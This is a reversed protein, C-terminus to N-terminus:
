SRSQAVDDLMGVVAKTLDRCLAILDDVYATVAALQDSPTTSLIQTRISDIQKEVPPHTCGSVDESGSRIRRASACLEAGYIMLVAGVGGFSAWSDESGIKHNIAVGIRDCLMELERHVESSLQSRFREFADEAICHGYEHGLAFIEMARVYEMRFVMAEPDSTLVGFGLM